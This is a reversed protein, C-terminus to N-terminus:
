GGERLLILSINGFSFLGDNISRAPQKVHTTRAGNLIQCDYDKGCINGCNMCSNIGLSVEVGSINV